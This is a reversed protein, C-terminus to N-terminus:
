NGKPLHSKVIWNGQSIFVIPLIIKIHRNTETKPLSKFTLLKQVSPNVTLSKRLKILKVRKCGKVTLHTFILCKFLSCPLMILIELVLM